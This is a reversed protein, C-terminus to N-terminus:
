AANAIKYRWTHVLPERNIDGIYRPSRSLFGAAILIPIRCRSM